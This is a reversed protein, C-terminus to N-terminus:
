SVVNLVKKSEITSKNQKTKRQRKLIGVNRKSWTTSTETTKSNIAINKKEM